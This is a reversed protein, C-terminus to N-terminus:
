VHGHGIIWGKREEKDLWSFPPRVDARRGTRPLKVDHDADAASTVPEAALGSYAFLGAADAGHFLVWGRSPLLQQDACCSLLVDSYSSRSLWAMGVFGRM